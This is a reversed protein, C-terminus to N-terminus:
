LPEPLITPAQSPAKNKLICVLHLTKRLIQREVKHPELLILCGDAEQVKLKSKFCATKLYPLDGAELPLISLTTSTELKWVKFNPIQLVAKALDAVHDETFVRM